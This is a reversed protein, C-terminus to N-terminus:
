SYLLPSPGPAAGQAAGPKGKAEMSIMVKMVMIFLSYNM